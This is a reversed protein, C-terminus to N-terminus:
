LQAQLFPRPPRRPEQPLAACVFPNTQHLSVSLQIRTLCSMEVVLRFKHLLIEEAGIIGRATTLWQFIMTARSIQVHAWVASPIQSRRQPLLNSIRCRNQQLLVQSHRLLIRLTLHHHLLIKLHHLIQPLSTLPDQIVHMVRDLLYTLLGQFVSFVM